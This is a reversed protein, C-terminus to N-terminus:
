LSFYFVLHLKKKRKRINQDDNELLWKSLIVNIFNNNVFYLLLSM